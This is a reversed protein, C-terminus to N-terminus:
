PILPVRSCVYDQQCDGGAEGEEEATIWVMNWAMASRVEANHGSVKSVLRECLPRRIAVVAAGAVADSKSLHGSERHM